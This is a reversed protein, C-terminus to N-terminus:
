GNHAGKKKNFHVKSPPSEAWEVELKLTLDPSLAHNESWRIGDRDERFRRGCIERIIFVRSSISANTRFPEEERPLEDQLVTVM